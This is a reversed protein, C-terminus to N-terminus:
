HAGIICCGSLRTGATLAFATLMWASVITSIAHIIVRAPDAPAAHSPLVGPYAPLGTIVDPQMPLWLSGACTRRDRMLSAPDDCSDSNGM